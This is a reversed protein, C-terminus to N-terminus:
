LYLAASADLQSPTKWFNLKTTYKEWLKGVRRDIIIKFLMFSDAFFLHVSIIKVPEIHITNKTLYKTFLIHFKCIKKFVKLSQCLYGWGIYTPNPYTLTFSQDSLPVVLYKSLSRCTWQCIHCQWGGVRGDWMHYAWSWWSM